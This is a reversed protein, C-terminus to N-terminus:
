ARNWKPLHNKTPTLRSAIATQCEANIDAPGASDRAPESRCPSKPTDPTAQASSPKGCACICCRTRSAWAM